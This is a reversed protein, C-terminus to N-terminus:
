NLKGTTIKPKARQNYRDTLACFEGIHWHKRTTWRKNCHQLQMWRFVAALTPQTIREIDIKSLM